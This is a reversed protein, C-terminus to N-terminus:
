LAIGVAPVQPKGVVSPFPGPSATSSRSESTLSGIESVADGSGSGTGPDRRRRSSSSIERTICNHVELLDARAIVDTESLGEEQYGEAVAFIFQCTVLTELVATRSIPINLTFVVPHMAVHASRDQDALNYCENVHNIYRPLFGAKDQQSIWDMFCVESTSRKCVLAFAPSFAITTYQTAEFSVWMAEREDQAQRSSRPTSGSDSSLDPLSDQRGHEISLKQVGDFDSHERVGILHYQRRDVNEKSVHYGEVKICNRMSDQIQFHFVSALSRVKGDAESQITAMLNDEFIKADEATATFEKFSKGSLSRGPGHLLMGALDPADGVVKFEDDLEVVADCITSLIAKVASTENRAHTAEVEQLALEMMSGKIGYLFFTFYAFSITEGAIFTSSYPMMDCPTTRFSYSAGAVLLYLLNGVFVLRLRHLCVLGGLLRFVLYSNSLVPLAEKHIFPPTTSIVCLTMFAAYWYPLTRLTVSAPFVAAFTVQCYFVCLCLQLSRSLFMASQSAINLCVAFACLHCCSTTIQFMRRALILHRVRMLEQAEKVFPDQEEKGDFICRRIANGVGRCVSGCNLGCFWLKRKNYGVRVSHFAMIAGLLIKVWCDQGPDPSWM